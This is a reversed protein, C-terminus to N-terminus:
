ASLAVVRKSAFKRRSLVAIGFLASGFLVAGGPLPVASLQGAYVTGPAGYLRLVYSGASLFASLGYSVALGPGSSLLAATAIEDGLGNVGDWDFLAMGAGAIYETVYATLTGQSGSLNILVDSSTRGAGIQGFYGQVGGGIGVNVTYDIAPVTSASAMSAPAVYFLVAALLRLM